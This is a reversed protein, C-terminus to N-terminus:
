EQRLYGVTLGHQILTFGTVADNDRQVKITLQTDQSFFEDKAVQKIEIPGQGVPKILYQKEGSWTITKISALVEAPLTKELAPLQAPDITYVGALTKALSPDFPLAKKAVPPEVYKGTTAMELAAGSITTTDVAYMNSLVVSNWAGDSTMFWSAHHGLTAGNHGFYAQGNSLRGTFIGLGYDIDHIKSQPTLMQAVVEKPLLTGSLLAQGFAILDECTGHAAGASFTVSPHMRPAAVIKENSSTNGAAINDDWMSANTMNAPDFINSKFYGSLSQKSSREIVIGLLYYGSNSYSADTGPSFRPPKKSIREIMSERSQETSLKEVFGEDSVYDGLGSRHALLHEITIADFSEPLEPLFSRLLDSRKLKGAQELQLIAVATMTKTISGYAYRQDPAELYSRNSVARGQHALLLDGRMRRFEDERLYNTVYREINQDLQVLADTQTESSTDQPTTSTSPATESSTATSAETSSAELSSTPALSSSATSLDGTALGSSDVAGSDFTTANSSGGTSTDDNEALTEDVSRIRLMCGHALFSSLLLGYPIFRTLAPRRNM